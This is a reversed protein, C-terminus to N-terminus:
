FPPPDDGAALRETRRAAEAATRAENTGRQRSRNEGAPPMRTPLILAGTPVALAPFLLSGVPKIFYM